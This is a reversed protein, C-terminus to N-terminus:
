RQSRPGRKAGMTPSEQPPEVLKRKLGFVPGRSCTDGGFFTMRGAEVSSGLLFVDSEGQKSMENLRTIIRKSLADEKGRIADINRQVDFSLKLSSAQPSLNEFVKQKIATQWPEQPEFKKLQQSFKEKLLTLHTATPEQKFRTRDNLEQYKKLLLGPKSMRSLSKYICNAILYNTSEVPVEIGAQSLKDVVIDYLGISVRYIFDKRLSLIENVHQEINEYTLKNNYLNYELGDYGNSIREVDQPGYLHIVSLMIGANADEQNADELLAQEAKSLICREVISPADGQDELKKFLPHANLIQGLRSICGPYCSPNDKDESATNHARRIEAIYFIFNDRILSAVDASIKPDDNLNQIELFIQSALQRIDLSALERTVTQNELGTNETAARTSFVGENGDDGLPKTLLNPWHTYNAKPEYARWATQATSQTDKFRDVAEGVLSEDSRKALVELNDCIFAKDADSTSPENAITQLLMERIKVEIEELHKENNVRTKKQLSIINSRANKIFEDSLSSEFDGARPIGSRAVQPIRAYLAEITYSEALFWAFVTCSELESSQLFDLYTEIQHPSGTDTYRTLKSVDNTTLQSMIKILDVASVTGVLSKKLKNYTAIFNYDTLESKEKLSKLSSQLNPIRELTNLLTQPSDFDDSILKAMSVAAGANELLLTLNEATVLESSEHELSLFGAFVNDAQLFNLKFLAAVNEQTLLSPYNKLKIWLAMGNVSFPSSQCNSAKEIFMTKGRSGQEGFLFNAVDIPEEKVILAAVLETHGGACALSFAAYDNAKLMASPEAKKHELLMSALETHGGSCASRFAAYEDAKLMASPETQEHNLLM